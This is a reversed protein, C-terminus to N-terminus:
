LELGCAVELVFAGVAFRELVGWKEVTLTETSGDGGELRPQHVSQLDRTGLSSESSYMAGSFPEM